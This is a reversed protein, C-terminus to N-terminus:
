GGRHNEIQTIAQPTLFVPGGLISAGTFLEAYKLLAAILKNLGAADPGLLIVGHNQVLIVRPV